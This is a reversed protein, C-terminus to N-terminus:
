IIYREELSQLTEVDLRKIIKLAKPHRVSIAVHSDDFLWSDDFLQFGEIFASRVTTIAFDGYKKDLNELTKNLMHCDRFNWGLRHPRPERFLSIPGVQTPINNGNAIESSYIHRIASSNNIDLLDFCESIDIKAALVVPVGGNREALNKAWKSALLPADQFFYCGRGLWLSNRTSQQIGHSDIQDWIEATTGHFGNVILSNIQDM